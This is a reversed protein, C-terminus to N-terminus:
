SAKWVLRGRRVVRASILALMRQVLMGIQNRCSKRADRGRCGLRYQAAQRMLERQYERGFVYDVPVM